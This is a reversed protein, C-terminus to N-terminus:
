EREKERERERKRKREERRKERREEREEREEREGKMKDKNRAFCTLSYPLDQYFFTFSSPPHYTTNTNFQEILKSVSLGGNCNRYTTTTGGKPSV